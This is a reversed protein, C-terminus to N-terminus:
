EGVEILPHRETFEEVTLGFLIEDHYEGGFLATRRRRGEQVFGLKEHLAISATNFAYAGNNCKQYRREGFMFRLVLV